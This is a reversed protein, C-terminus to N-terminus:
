KQYLTNVEDITRERILQLLPPHPLVHIRLTDDIRHPLKMNCMFELLDHGLIDNRMKKLLIGTNIKKNSRVEELTIDPNIYSELEM